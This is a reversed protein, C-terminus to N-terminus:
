RMKAIRARRYPQTRKVVRLNKYGARRLKTLMLRTDAATAPKTHHGMYGGGVSVHGDVSSYAEMSSQDHTSGPETPFVAILDPFSKESGPRTRERRVIVPLTVPKYKVGKRRKTPM